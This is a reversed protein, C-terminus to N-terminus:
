IRDVLDMFWEAMKLATEAEDKEITETDRYKNYLREIVRLHGFSDVMGKRSRPIYDIGDKEGCKHDLFFSLCEAARYGAERAKGVASGYDGLAFAEQALFFNQWAKERYRPLLQSFIDM